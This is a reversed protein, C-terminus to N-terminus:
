GKEDLKHVRLLPDGSHAEANHNAVEHSPRGAGCTLAKPLKELFTVEYAPCPNMFFYFPDMGKWGRATTGHFMGMRNEMAVPVIDDTLEAFLSSFRLLFPERCTTGEPCIALDGSALLRCITAVDTAGNRSLCPPSPRPSSPPPPLCLLHPHPRSPPPRRLPFHSRPPHPPLLRFPLRLLPPLLTEKLTSASASSACPPPSSPCPLLSGAAIRAPSSSASPSGSSPSSPAFLHPSKFLRGDHFVIPRLLHARGVVFENKELKEPVVYAEKCLARLLFYTKRQSIGIEPATSEGLM